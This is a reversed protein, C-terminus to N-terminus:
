DRMAESCSVVAGAAAQQLLAYLTERQSDDLAGLVENEVASLACEAQTLLKAGAGTLQVM